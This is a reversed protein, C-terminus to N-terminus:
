TRLYGNVTSINIATVSVADPSVDSPCLYFSGDQMIGHGAFYLSFVDLGKQQKLVGHISNEIVTKTPSLLIISSHSNYISASSKTLADFIANADTEASGLPKVHLYRNCGISILVCRAADTDASNIVPSAVLKM